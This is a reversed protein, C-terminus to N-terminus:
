LEEMMARAEAVQSEDGVAIVEELMARSAERDGMSLYARALDLKIEPDDTDLDDEDGERAAPRAAPAPQQVTAEDTADPEMLVTDDAEPPEMVVTEDESAQSDPVPAPPAQVRTTADDASGGGDLVDLVEEAEERLQVLSDDGQSGRAAFRRVLWWAVLALVILALLWPLVRCRGM